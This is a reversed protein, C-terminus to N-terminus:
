DLRALFKRIATEYAQPDVNWSRTHSARTTVLTVIDPYKRAMEASTAYPVSTDMTGHFILTPTRPERAQSLYDTAAWDISFRWTSLLKAFDALQEPVRVSIPLLPITDHAARFDITQEFDLIPSDLITAKTRNRLPSTSLFSTVIAGGMSYGILINDTAGNEDSYLVAAALDAWETRGYQHYGSPDRAQGRDNRYCIVLTPYGLDKLLPILRLAEERSAGKGHVVIAWTDSSGPIFWAPFRGVNSSYFVEDYEIGLADLPNGTYVLPNFGVLTGVPPATESPDISRTEVRSRGDNMSSEIGPSVVHGDSWEIGEIGVRNLQDDSAPGRVSITSNSVDIVELTYRPQEMTPPKLVEDEFSSSLLFGFTAFLVLFAVTLALTRKLGDLITKQKKRPRPGAMPPWQSTRRGM